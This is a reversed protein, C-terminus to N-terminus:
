WTAVERWKILYHGLLAWMLLYSGVFLGNMLLDESPVNFGNAVYDTWTLRETNPIVNLLRRLCWRFGEDMALTVQQTPSATDPATGLSENTALKRLSDIPGPNGMEPSFSMWALSIIASQFFGLGVLFLTALFSVVGNLYTSCTVAIGVVLCLRLWIGIVGKFYNAHFSGESSLLYLDNQKVGLYQTSSDCRVAVFFRPGEINGHRYHEIREPTGEFAKKFISSPIYVHLTHYDVVEKGTFEYYGIEEVIKVLKAWDAKEAANGDPRATSIIREDKVRQLYKRQAEALNKNAEHTAFFLSCFVGKNEEGKTTRFIDFKFECRVADDPLRALDRDLGSGFFFWMARFPNNPGGPIYRRIEYERGVLEGQFRSGPPGQFGLDGYLPARAKMSEAKAEPDINSFITIVWSFATVAFLLVTVLGMHGIFRGMVIEFREVPKTVVTHITQSRIDTPISFSAMTGAALMLILTMFLHLNKISTNLEGEPKVLFFWKTPFMFPLLFILFVWLVRGRIADLVTLRALAYVRRFRIKSCDLVFPAVVGVLAAAGGLTYCWDFWRGADPPNELLEFPNQSTVTRAAGFYSGALGIAYLLISLGIIGLIPLPLTLRAPGRESLARVGRFVLWIVLGLLAFGGADQCFTRLYKASESFELPAYTLDLSGFILEAPM